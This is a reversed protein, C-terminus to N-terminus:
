RVIKLNPKQVVASKPLKKTRQKLPRNNSPAPYNNKLRAFIKQEEIAAKKIRNIVKPTIVKDIILSFDVHECWDECTGYFEYCSYVINCLLEKTETADILVEFAIEGFEMYGHKWSDMIFRTCNGIKIEDIKGYDFNLTDLKLLATQINKYHQTSLNQPEVIVYCGACYQEDSVWNHCGNCKKRTNCDRDDYTSYRGM